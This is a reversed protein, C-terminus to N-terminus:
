KEEKARKAVEDEEEKAQQEDDGEKKNDKSSDDSAGDEDDTAGGRERKRREKIKINFAETDKRKQQRLKIKSEITIQQMDRRKYNAPLNEYEAASVGQM